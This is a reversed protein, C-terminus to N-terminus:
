EATTQCLAIKNVNQGPGIYLSQLATSLYIASTAEVSAKDDLPNEM